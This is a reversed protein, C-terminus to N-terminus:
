YERHINFLLIAGLLGPIMFLHWIALYGDVYFLYIVLLLIVSLVGASTASIKGLLSQKVFTFILGIVYSLLSLITLVMVVYLKDENVSKIVESQSIIGFSFIISIAFFLVSTSKLLINKMIMGGNNLESFTSNYSRL